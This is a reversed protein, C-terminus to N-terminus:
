MQEIFVVFRLCLAFCICKFQNGSILVKFEDGWMSEIGVPSAPPTGTQTFVEGDTRCERHPHRACVRVRSAFRAFRAYAQKHASQQSHPLTHTTYMDLHYSLKFVFIYELRKFLCCVSVRLRSIVLRLMFTEPNAFLIYIHPALTCM